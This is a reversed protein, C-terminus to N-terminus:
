DGSVSRNKLLDEYNKIHKDLSKKMSMRVKKPTDKHKVLYDRRGNRFIGVMTNYLHNRVNDPLACEDVRVLFSKYCCKWMYEHTRPDSIKNLEKIVGYADSIMSGVKKFYVRSHQGTSVVEEIIEELRIAARVKGFTNEM